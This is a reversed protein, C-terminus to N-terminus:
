FCLKWISFFRSSPCCLFCVSFRVTWGKNEHFVSPYPVPLPLRSQDQDDTDDEDGMEHEYDVFPWEWSRWCWRIALMMMMMMMKIMMRDASVTWKGEMQNRCECTEGRMVSEVQMWLKLAGIFTADHFGQIFEFGQICHFLKRSRHRPM